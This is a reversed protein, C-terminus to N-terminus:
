ATSLTCPVSEDESEEATEEREEDVEDGDDDAEVGVRDVDLEYGGVTGLGEQSLEGM